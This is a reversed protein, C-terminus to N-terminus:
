SLRVEIARAHADLGETTAMARVWPSVRELGARSFQVVATSKFFDAVRLPSAFRATGATPLVHNTGAVYDGIAVPSYAGVFVAGANRVRPLLSAAEECVLELHEPAFADAIELAQDLDRVLVARGQAELAKEVDPRRPSREVEAPLAREV